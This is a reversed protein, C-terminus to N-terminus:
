YWLRPAVAQVFASVDDKNRIEYYTMAQDGVFGVQDCISIRALPFWFAVLRPDGLLQYVAGSRMILLDRDEQRSRRGLLRSRFHRNDRLVHDRRFVIAFIEYGVSIKTGHGEGNSVDVPSPGHDYYSILPM